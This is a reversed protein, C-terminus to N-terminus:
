SCLDCHFLVIHEKWTYDFLKNLNSQTLATNLIPHLMLNKGLTILDSACTQRGLLM